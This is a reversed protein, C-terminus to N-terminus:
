SSELSAIHKRISDRVPRTNQITGGLITANGGAKLDILLKYGRTDPDKLVSERIFNQSAVDLGLSNLIDGAPFQLLYAILRRGEELKTGNTFGFGTVSSSFVRKRPEPVIANYDIPVSTPPTLARDEAKTYEGTIPNYVGGAKSNMKFNSIKINSKNYGKAGMTIRSKVEFNFIYKICLKFNYFFTYISINSPLSICAPLSISLFDFYKLNEYVFPVLEKFLYSFFIGLLFILIVAKFSLSNNLGKLQLTLLKLTVAAAGCYIFYLYKLILINSIHENLTYLYNPLGKAYYGM